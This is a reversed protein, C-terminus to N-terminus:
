YANAPCVSTSLHLPIHLSYNRVRKVSEELKIFADTDVPFIGAYVQPSQSNPQPFLSMSVM